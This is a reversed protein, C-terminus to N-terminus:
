PGAPYTGFEDPESVGIGGLVSSLLGSADNNAGGSVSSWDGSALNHSGGGVSSGEGFANAAYGGCVSSTEGSAENLFGGSVSSSYGSALNDRGGSVSSVTEAALNGLGGSVSSFTGSATNDYGGSVAAGVGTINNDQGAVLGGYSTWDHYQGIVLNHSGTRQEDGWSESYGVVLNGLGNRTATVTTGNTVYVNAGVFRVAHQDEDVQLYSTLAALTPNLAAAFDQAMVWAQTAFGQASVWAQTALGAGLLGDLDDRLSEVEANAVVLEAQTDALEVQLAALSSQLSANLAAQAEQEAAVCVAFRRFALGPDCAAQAAPAALLLLGSALATVGAKLTPRPHTLSRPAPM